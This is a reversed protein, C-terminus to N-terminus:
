YTLALTEAESDGNLITFAKTEVIEGTLANIVVRRRQWLSVQAKEAAAQSAPRLIVKWLPADPITVDYHVSASTFIAAKKADMGLPGTLAERAIRVAEEQAIAGDGPLGYRHSVIFLGLPDSYNPNAAMHEEIIPRLTDTFDRQEELPRDEFSRFMKRLEIDHSKKEEALAKMQAPSYLATVLHGDIIEGTEMLACSYSGDAQDDTSFTVGYGNIRTGATTDMQEYTWSSSYSDLTGPVMDWAAEIAQQALRVIEEPKLPSTSPNLYVVDESSLLGTDQLLSTYWAKQEASWTDIPGLERELIAELGITDSRGQAGYRDILYADIAAEDQLTAATEEDLLGHEQMSAILARKEDFGWTDYYGSEKQLRAADEFYGSLGIALAATTLLTLILALAMTLSLKRKM